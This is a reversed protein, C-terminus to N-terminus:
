VGRNGCGGCCGGGGRRNRKGGGRKGPRSWVPAGSDDALVYSDEGRVIRHPYLHAVGDNTEIQATLTIRDGDALSWGQRNWFRVPGLHVTYRKGESEFTATPREADVIVGELTVVVDEDFREGEAGARGALVAGTCAMALVLGIGTMRKATTRTVVDM